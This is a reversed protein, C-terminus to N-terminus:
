RSHAKSKLHPKLSSVDGCDLKSPSPSPSSHSQGAWFVDSAFSLTLHFKVGFAGAAADPEHWMTGYRLSGKATERHGADTTVATSLLLVVALALRTITTGGVM